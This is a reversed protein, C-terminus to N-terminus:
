KPNYFIKSVLLLPWVQKFETSSSYFVTIGVGVVCRASRNVFVNFRKYNFGSTWYVGASYM